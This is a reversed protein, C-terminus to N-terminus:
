KPCKERTFLAFFFDCKQLPLLGVACARDRRNKSWEAHFKPEMGLILNESLRLNSREEVLRQFGHTEAGFHHILM